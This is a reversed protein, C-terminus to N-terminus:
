CCDAADAARRECPCTDVSGSGLRGGAGAAPCEAGARHSDRRGRHHGPHQREAGGPSRGARGGPGREEAALGGSGETHEGDDSCDACHNPQSAGRLDAM